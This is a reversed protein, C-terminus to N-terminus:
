SASKRRGAMSKQLAITVQQEVVLASHVTVPGVAAAAAMAASTVLCATSLPCPVIQRPRGPKHAPRGGISLPGRATGARRQQGALKCHRMRLSHTPQGGRHRGNQGAQARASSAGM